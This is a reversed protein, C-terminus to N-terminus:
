SVTIEEDATHARILHCMPVFEVNRILVHTHIDRIRDLTSSSPRQVRARGSCDVNLSAHRGGTVLWDGANSTIDHCSDIM